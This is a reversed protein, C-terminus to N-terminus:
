IGITRPRMQRAATRSENVRRNGDQHTEIVSSASKQMSATFSYSARSPWGSIKVVSWRLWNMEVWKMLTRALQSILIQISPFTAQRSLPITSRSQRVM